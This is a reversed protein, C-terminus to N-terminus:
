FVCHYFASKAVVWEPIGKDVFDRSSSGMWYWLYDHCFWVLVGGFLLMGGIGFRKPFTVFERILFILSLVTLIVFALDTIFPVGDMLWSLGALVTPALFPAALYRWRALYGDEYTPDYAAVLEPHSEITAM